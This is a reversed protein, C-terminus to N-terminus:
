SVPRCGWLLHRQNKCPSSQFWLIRSRWASTVKNRMPLMESPIQMPLFSLWIKPSGFQGAAPLSGRVLRQVQRAGLGQASACGQDGSAVHSSILQKPWHCTLLSLQWEWQICRMIPGEKGGVMVGPSRGSLQLEILRLSSLMSCAGPLGLLCVKCIVGSVQPSNTM